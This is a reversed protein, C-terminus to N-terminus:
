ESNTVPVHWELPSTGVGWVMKGKVEFSVERQITTSQICFGEFSLSNPISNSAPNPSNQSKSKMPLKANVGLIGSSIANRMAGALKTAM